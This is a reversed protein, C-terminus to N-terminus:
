PKPYNFFFKLPLKLLFKIHYPWFWASRDHRISLIYYKIALRFKRFLLAGNAHHLYKESILYSKLWPPTFASVLEAYEEFISRIGAINNTVLQDTEASWYTKLSIRSDHQVYVSTHRRVQIFPFEALARLLFHTDPYLVFRADFTHKRFVERHICLSNVGCFNLAFFHVPHIGAGEEYHSTRIESGPEDYVMGTRFIAVPSGTKLIELYLVELHDPLYYDDSDLLCIYRGTARAIGFNRASSEGGNEKPLYHIRPDKYQKVTNETNDESGDDVLLLEWDSFGQQLVSDIAQGVLHARNYTPIVVSFLPLGSTEAPKNM